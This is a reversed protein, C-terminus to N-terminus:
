PYFASETEWGRPYFPLQLPRFCVFVSFALPGGGWGQCPSLSLFFLSGPTFSIHPWVGALRSVTPGNPRACSRNRDKKDPRAQCLGCDWDQGLCLPDYLPLSLSLSHAHTHTHAPPAQHRENGHDGIASNVM